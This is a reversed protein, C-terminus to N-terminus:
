LAREGTDDIHTIMQVAHRFLAQVGIAVKDKEASPPELAAKPVPEVVIVSWYTGRLDPNNPAAIRYSVEARGHPPVVLQNPSYTIWSANSRPASGPRGFESKGDSYFVYDTQYIRITVEEGDPNLIEISGQVASGLSLTKEVTLGTPISIAECRGSISSVFLCAFLASVLIKKM